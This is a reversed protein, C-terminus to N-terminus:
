WRCCPRIRQTHIDGQRHLVKSVTVPEDGFPTNLLTNLLLELGEDGAEVLKNRRIKDVDEIFTLEFEKDTTDCIDINLVPLLVGIVTTVSFVVLDNLVEPLTDAAPIGFLLRTEQLESSTSRTDRDVTELIELTTISRSPERDLLSTFRILKWLRM